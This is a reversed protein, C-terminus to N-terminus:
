SPNRLFTNSSALKIGFRYGRFLGSYTTNATWFELHKPKPCRFVPNELFRQRGFLIQSKSGDQIINCYLHPDTYIYTDSVDRVDCVKEKFNQDFKPCTFNQTEIKKCTDFIYIHINYIYISHQLISAYKQDMTCERVFYVVM